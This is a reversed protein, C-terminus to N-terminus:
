QKLKLAPTPSLQYTISNEFFLAKKSVITPISKPVVFDQIATISLSLGIIIGLV